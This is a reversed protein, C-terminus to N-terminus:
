PKEGPPLAEVMSLSGSQRSAEHSLVWRRGRGFLFARAPPQERPDGTHQAGRRGCHDHGNQSLVGVAQDGVDRRRPIGDRDVGFQLRREVIDTEGGPLFERLGIQRGQGRHCRLIFGGPESGVLVADDRARAREGESEGAVSGLRYADRTNGHVARTRIRIAARHHAHRQPSAGTHDRLAHLDVRLVEVWLRVGVVRARVLLGIKRIPGDHEVLALFLLNHDVDIGAEGAFLVRRFHSQAVHPHRKVQELLALVRSLLHGGSHPYHADLGESCVVGVVM